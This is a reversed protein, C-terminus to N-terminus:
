SGSVVLVLGFGGRVVGIGSGGVIFWGFGTGPGSQLKGAGRNTGPYVGAPRPTTRAGKTCREVGGKRPRKGLRKEARSGVELKRAGVGWCGGGLVGMGHGSVGETTDNSTTVEYPRWAGLYSRSGETKSSVRSVPFSGTAEEGGNKCWNWWVSARSANM